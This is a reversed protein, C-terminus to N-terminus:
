CVTINMKITDESYVSSATQLPTFQLYIHCDTVNEKVRCPLPLTTYINLCFLIDYISIIYKYKANIYKEGLICKISLWIYLEDCFIDNCIYRM